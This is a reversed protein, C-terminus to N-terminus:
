VSHTRKLGEADSGLRFHVLSAVSTAEFLSPKLTHVLSKRSSNPPTMSTTVTMIIITTYYYYYYDLLLFQSNFNEIINSNSTKPVTPM